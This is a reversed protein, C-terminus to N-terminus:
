RRTIVRPRVRAVRATVPRVSRDLALFQKDLCGRRDHCVALHDTLFDTVPTAVVAPVDDVESPTATWRALSTVEEADDGTATKTM